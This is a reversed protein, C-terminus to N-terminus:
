RSAYVTTTGDRHIALVDYHEGTSMDMGPASSPMGPVALGVIAPREKLVRQMLDLPVHGEFVYGGAVATHCGALRTTIGHDREIVALAEHSPVNVTDVQFGNAAVLAVWKRCCGCTPDKYVTVVTAAPSAASLVIVVAALSAPRIWRQLHM